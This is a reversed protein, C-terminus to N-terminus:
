SKTELKPLPKALTRRAADQVVKELAHYEGDIAAVGGVLIKAHELPLTITPHKEHVLRAINAILGDFQPNTKM